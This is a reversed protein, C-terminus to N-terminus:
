SAPRMKESWAHLKDALAIIEDPKAGESLVGGALSKMDAYTLIRFWTAIHELDTKDRPELQTPVPPALYDAPTGTVVRPFQPQRKGYQDPHTPENM